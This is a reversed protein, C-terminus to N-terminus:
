VNKSGKKPSQAVTTKAPKDASEPVKPASVRVTGATRKVAVTPPSVAKPVSAVQVSASPAVAPKKVVAKISSAPKAAKAASAVQVSKGKKAPESMTIKIERDAKERIDKKAASALAAMAKEAPQIHTTGKAVERVEVAKGTGSEVVAMVSPLRNGNADVTVIRPKERPPAKDDVVTKPMAPIEEYVAFHRPLFDWRLWALYACAVEINKAPDFVGSSYDWEVKYRQTIDKWVVPMVQMLGRAGAHSVTSNNYDSETKIIARVMQPDLGYRTASAQIYPEYPSKSLDMQYYKFVRPAYNQTERYPVDGGYKLLAYPGANYAQLWLRAQESSLSPVSVSHGNAQIIPKHHDATKPMPIPASIRQFDADIATGAQGVSAHMKITTPKATPGGEM